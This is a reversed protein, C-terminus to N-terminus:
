WGRKAVGERGRRVARALERQERELDEVIEREEPRLMRKAQRRADVVRARYWRRHEASPVVRPRAKWMRVLEVIGLSGLVMLTSRAPRRSGKGVARGWTGAVIRREAEARVEVRREMEKRQPTHPMGQRARASELVRRAEASPEIAEGRREAYVQTFEAGFYLIQSTYYVWLLVAVISGAAGYMSSASGRGLYWGLAYNGVGFLVGTVLGGMWVDRWRVHAEPVYKFLLAFLVTTIGITVLLAAVTGLVAGVVGAGSLTSTLASLATNVGLMVLMLVAVVVVM